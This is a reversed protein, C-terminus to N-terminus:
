LELCNNEYLRFINLKNEFKRRLFSYIEQEFVYSSILVDHTHELIKEPKIVEFELLKQGWKEPNSDSLAVINAKQISTKRFLNGTHDGSGYIILPAGNLKAIILNIKQNLTKLTKNYDEVYDILISKTNEYDSEIGVPFSTNPDIKKAKQAMVMFSHSLEDNVSLVEFGTKKLFMFLTRPSYYFLHQYTFFSDLNKSIPKRIDPVEVFIYGNTKLLKRSKLLAASPNNMHELANRITVLDFKEKTMFDELTNNISPISLVNNVYDSAAKSPEIGMVAYGKDKLIKLFLGHSSGVDLVKKSHLKDRIKKEIFEIQRERYEKWIKSINPLLTYQTQYFRDLEDRNMRPNLFVLGCKKCIVNVMDFKVVDEMTHVEINNERYIEEFDPGSCLLCSELNGNCSEKSKMIIQAVREAGKGDLFEKGKQSM